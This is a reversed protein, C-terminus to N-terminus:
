RDSDKCKKEDSLAFGFPQRQTKKFFADPDTKLLKIAEPDRTEFVRETNKTM